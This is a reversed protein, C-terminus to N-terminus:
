DAHCPQRSQRAGARQGPSQRHYHHRRIRDSTPRQTNSNGPCPAADGHKGTCDPNNRAPSFSQPCRSRASPIADGSPSHHRRHRSAHPPDTSDIDSHASAAPPHASHPRHSRPIYLYSPSTPPYEHSPAPHRNPRLRRTATANTTPTDTNTPAPQTFTPAISVTNQARVDLPNVTAFWMTLLLSAIALLLLLPNPRTSTM